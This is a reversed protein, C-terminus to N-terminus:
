QLFTSRITTSMKVCYVLPLLCKPVTSWIPNSRKFNSTIASGRDLVSVIM